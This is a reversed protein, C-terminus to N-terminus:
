GDQPEGARCDAHAPEGQGVDAEAPRQSLGIQGGLGLVLPDQIVEAGLLPQGEPAVGGDGGGHQHSEQARHDQQGPQAVHILAPLLLQPADEAMLQGMVPPLIDQIFPSHRRDSGEVPEVGQHDEDPPLDGPGALQGAVLPGHLAHVGVLPLGVAMGEQGQGRLLGTRGGGEGGGPGRLHLAQPLTQEAHQAM